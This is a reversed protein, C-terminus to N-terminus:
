FYTQHEIGQDSNLIFSMSLPINFFLIGHTDLILIQNTEIELKKSRASLINQLILCVFYKMSGIRVRLFLSLYKENTQHGKLYIYKSIM